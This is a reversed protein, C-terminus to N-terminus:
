LSKYMATIEDVQKQSITPPASSIVDFLTGILTSSEHTIVGSRGLEDSLEKGSKGSVNLNAEQGLETLTTHLETSIKNLQEMPTGSVPVTGQLKATSKSTGGPKLAAFVKKAADLKPEFTMSIGSSDAKFSGMRGMANKFQSRFMLIIIFLTLPWIIVELLKILVEATIDISIIM